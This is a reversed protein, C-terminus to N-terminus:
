RNAVLCQFMELIIAKMEQIYLDNTSFENKFSSFVVILIFVFLVFCFVDEKEFGKLVLILTCRSDQLLCLVM